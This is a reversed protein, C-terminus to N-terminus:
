FSKALSLCIKRIKRQNDSFGISMLVCNKYFSVVSNKSRIGLCASGQKVSEM